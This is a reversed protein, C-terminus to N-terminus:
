LISDDLINDIEPCHFGAASITIFFLRMHLQWVMNSLQKFANIYYAKSSM